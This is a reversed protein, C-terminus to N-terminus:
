KRPDSEFKALGNLIVRHTRALEEHQRRSLEHRDHIQQHLAAVEEASDELGSGARGLREEHRDVLEEHVLIAARHRDLTEAFSGLELEPLLRGVISQIAEKYEGQWRELDKLWQAHDERARLHDLHTSTQQSEKMQSWSVASKVRGGFFGLSGVRRSIRAEPERIEHSALLQARGRM